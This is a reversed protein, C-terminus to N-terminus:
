DRCSDQQVPKDSRLPVIVKGQATDFFVTETGYLAEILKADLVEEPRGCAYVSGDKLALALDAYTLAQQPHHTSLVVTYGEDALKRVQELVMMQNGYDLSATPEDMLITRTGQALARAILVLQQEGGSLKSFNRTALHSINLQEMAKRAAKREEEKPASFSRVRHATGMLVIDEVSFAFIMAHIQPIYAILHALEKASITRTSVGDALIDGTYKPLLGLICRFLTTKGVGNPGLVATLSGNEAAFSINKLVPM